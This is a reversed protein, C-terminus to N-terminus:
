FFDPSDIEINKEMNRLPLLDTHDPSINKAAKVCRWASYPDWEMLFVRWLDVYAGVILPDSELCTLLSEKIKEDTRHQAMATDALYYNLLYAMKSQTSELTQQAEKIQRLDKLGYVMRRVQRDGLGGCRQLLERFGRDNDTVAFFRHAILVAEEVHHSGVATDIMSESEKRLHDVTPITTQALRDLIPELRTDKSQSVYEQPIEVLHEKANFLANELKYTVTTERAGERSRFTMEAPLHGQAVIDKRIEPHIKCQHALFRRLMRRQEPGLEHSSPRFTVFEKGDYGFRHTGEIQNHVIELSKGDFLQMAQPHSFSFLSELEFRSCPEMEASSLEAAESAHCLANRHVTESNLFWVLAHIPMLVHEKTRHDLSVLTKNKADYLHTTDSERLEYSEPGLLLTVTESLTQTKELYPATTETIRQFTLHWTGSDTTSQVTQEVETPSLLACFGILGSRFATDVLSLGSRHGVLQNAINLLANISSTTISSAMKMAGDIEATEVMQAIRREQMRERKNIVEKKITAITCKEQRRWNRGFDTKSRFPEDAMGLQICVVYGVLASLVSRSFM